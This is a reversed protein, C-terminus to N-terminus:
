LISTSEVNLNIIKLKLNEVIAAHFDMKWTYFM